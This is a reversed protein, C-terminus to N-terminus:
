TEGEQDDIDGTMLHHPHQLLCAVHIGVLSPTALWPSIARWRSISLAALLPISPLILLSIFLLTLMSIPITQIKPDELDGLLSVPIALIHLTAAVAPDNPDDPDGLLFIVLSIRLSILMSVPDGPYTHLTM